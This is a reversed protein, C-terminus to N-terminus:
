ETRRVVAAQRRRRVVHFPGGAPRKVIPHRIKSGSTPVATLMKRTSRGTNRPISAIRVSRDRGVTRVWRTTGRCRGRGTTVARNKWGDSNEQSGSQPQQGRSPSQADNQSWQNTSRRDDYASGQAGGSHMGSNDSRSSRNDMPSNNNGMSDNQSGNKQERNEGYMKNNNDM